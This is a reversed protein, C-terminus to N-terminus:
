NNLMQSFSPLVCLHTDVEKRSDPFLFFFHIQLKFGVEAAEVIKGKSLRM